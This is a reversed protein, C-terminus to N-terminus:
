ITVMKCLVHSINYSYNGQSGDGGGTAAAASARGSKLGSWAM